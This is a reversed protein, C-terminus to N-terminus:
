RHKKRLLREMAIEKRRAMDDFARNAKLKSYADAAKAEKARFERVLREIFSSAHSVENPRMGSSVEILWQMVTVMGDYRSGVGLGM